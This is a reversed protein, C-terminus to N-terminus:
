EGWSLRENAVYADIEQTTKGYTGNACGFLAMIDFPENQKLNNPKLQIIGNNYSINLTDSPQINAQKAIVPPLTIQNHEHLIVQTM